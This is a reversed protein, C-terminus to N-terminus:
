LLPRLAELLRANEQPTSVNIRLCGSLAPHGGDLKKILVGAQKLGEHLEAAPKDLSRVLLFNAESPWVQLGDLAKLADFLETRADRLQQTQQRFLEYNEM